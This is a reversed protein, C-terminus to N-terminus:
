RINYATTPTFQGGWEYGYQLAVDKMQYLVGSNALSFSNSDLQWIALESRDGMDKYWILANSNNAGCGAIGVIKWNQDQVQTTFHGKWQGDRKTWIANEGTERNRWVLEDIGNGDLDGAAKIDWNQDEVRTIFESSIMNNGNMYWIANEGTQNNRWVIDSKDDGNFNGTAQIRWSSDTIQPNINTLNNNAPNYTFQEPNWTLDPTKPNKAGSIIGYILWTPNNGGDMYSPFVDVMERSPNSNSVSNIDLKIPRTFTGNVCNYYYHYIARNNNHIKSAFVVNGGRQIDLVPQRSPIIPNYPGALAKDIVNNQVVFFGTGLVVLSLSFIVGIFIIQKKTLQKIDIFNM